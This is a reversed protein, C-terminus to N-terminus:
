KMVTMSRTISGQDTQLIYFYVGSSLGAADFSVQHVGGDLERHLLSQLEDGHSSYMALRVNMRKPLSFQITTPQGIGARFPNPYNQDLTVEQPIPSPRQQVSTMPNRDHQQVMGNYSVAWGFSTDAFVVSHIEAGPVFNTPIWSVGKDRSIWAQRDNAIWVVSTGPFCQVSHNQKGFMPLSDMSTWSIGGNSTRNVGGSQRDVLFGLSKDFFSISSVSRTKTKSSLWTAGGDTTRIIDAFDPTSSNRNSSAYCGFKDDLFTLTGAIPQQAWRRRGTPNKSWTEGANFTIYVDASDREGMTVAIGNQASTFHISGYRANIERNVINWNAGGDTTKIICGAETTVLCTNADFAFLDHVAATHNTIQLRQWNKGGDTSRSVLGTDHGVWLVNKDVSFIRTTRKAVRESSIVQWHYQWQVDATNLTFSQTASGASNTAEITVSAVLDSAKWQVFGLKPDITMGSPGSNLKYTPAPFGTTVAAYTFLQGPQLTWTPPTSTFKPASPQVTVLALDYMGRGHTVARLTGTNENFLLQQVSIAPMGTGLIEWNAGKNTSVFVGIDTAAIYMDGRVFIDNVPIDPLNGDIATWLNGGDNSQYFHPAGYGAYVAFFVGPAYSRVANCYRRPLGNSKVQWTTAQDTSIAVGYSAAALVVNHDYPAVSVATVFYYYSGDFFMYSPTTRNWNKGGNTTKFVTTYTGFYLKEPEIPDIANMSYFLTNEQPPFGVLARVWTKGFDDSRSMSMGWDTTYQIAPNLPNIQSFGGDGFNVRDWHPSTSSNMTGNDQTGGLIYDDTTPHMAGGVFQTIALGYDIKETVAGNQTIRFIGGDNGIYVNDPNVPDFAVEHQDVHLLGGQVQDQIRTWTKGGDGSRILKVGGAYLINPDKPNVGVINDYWGQSVIYDFPVSLKEWADGGNTTKYVGVLRTKFGSRSNESIGALVVDPQDACLALSIRGMLDENVTLPVQMKTWTVGADTTKHIGVRSVTMGYSIQSSATYLINPNIPNIIVDNTIGALVNTWSNGADTSKWIGSENAGFTGQPIAAYLNNPNKPDIALMSVNSNAPLTSVGVKRWSKGADSSKYIGDGEFMRQGYNAEGTGAYVVNTDVPDIALAGMAQTTFDDSVSFWSKAGDISKWVGGDASGCYLTRPNKPNIALTVVRGGINIPGINKWQLAAQTSAGKSPRYYSMTNRMQAVANARASVPISGSPYLNKQKWFEERLRVNEFEDGDSEVPAAPQEGIRRHFTVEQAQLMQLATLLTIFILSFIRMLVENLSHM